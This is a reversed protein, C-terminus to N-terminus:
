CNEENRRDIVARKPPEDADAFDPRSVLRLRPNRSGNILLPLWGVELELGVYIMLDARRLRSMHSPKAELYHPDQYGRCLAEVDVHDGGIIRVLAALDTTTTVVRLEAQASAASLLLVLAIITIRM